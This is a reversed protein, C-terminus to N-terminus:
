KKRLGQKITWAPKESLACEEFCTWLVELSEEAKVWSDQQVGKIRALAQILTSIPLFHRAVDLENKIM